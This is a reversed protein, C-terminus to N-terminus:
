LALAGARVSVRVARFAGKAKSSDISARGAKAHLERTAVTVWRDGGTQARAAPGLFRPLSTLILIVGALCLLLGTPVVYRRVLSLQMPEQGRFMAALDCDNGCVGRQGKLTDDAHGAARSGCGM